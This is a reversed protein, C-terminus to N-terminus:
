KGRELKKLVLNGIAQILYVIILIIIIAAYIVDIWNRRLGYILSVDGIGGGAIAGVMATLGLLYVLTITTARVLGPMSEKLYVRYLIQVNSTGMAQAAEIVGADVELLATEFQRAFLPTTAIILPIISGELGITTGILFRTLPFIAPLMIVFPLARIINIPFSLLTFIIKNPYLGDERFLILLLAYVLGFILSIPGAILLMQLTVITEHIIVDKLEIVNPILNALNFLIM